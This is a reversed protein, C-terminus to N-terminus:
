SRSPAPGAKTTRGNIYADWDHRSWERLLMRPAPALPGLQPERPLEQWRPQAGTPHLVPPMPGGTAGEELAVAYGDLDRYFGDGLRGLCVGQPSFVGRQRVLALPKGATDFIADRHRWAVPQGNRDYIADM